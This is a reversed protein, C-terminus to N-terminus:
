DKCKTDFNTLKVFRIGVGFCAVRLEIDLYKDGDKPTIADISAGLQFSHFQWYERGFLFVGFHKGHIGGYVAHADPIITVQELEYTEGTKVDVYQLRDNPIAKIKKGFNPHREDIVRYKNVKEM